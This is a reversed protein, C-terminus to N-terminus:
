NKFRERFNQTAICAVREKYVSVFIVFSFCLVKRRVRKILMSTAAAMTVVVEPTACVKGVFGM